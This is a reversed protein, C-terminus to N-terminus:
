KNKAKKLAELKEILAQNKEKLSILNAHQEQKAKVLVPILENFNMGIRESTIQVYVDKEAESKPHWDYAYVVEPIVKQVDQALLGVITRKDKNPLAVTGVQENKWKYTVPKLLMLEKLGYNLDETNIKERADSTQVATNVAWIDRWRYTSSGLGYFDDSEPVVRHSFQSANNGDTIVEVDGVAFTTGTALGNDIDLEHTTTGTRGIVVPGDHYVQDSLTSGSLFVWDADGSSLSASSGWYANGNADSTLVRNLAQNGDEIRLVPATGNIHLSHSPTATGIGILGTADIRMAESNNAIIVVDQADLTGVKETGVATSADGTLSWGSGGGFTVWSAGNYYYFGPTGNTQYVLLGTAPSTIANKQAQTMKSVLLGSTTSSIDLASSPAPTNTGIGVQGYSHICVIFFLYLILHQKM